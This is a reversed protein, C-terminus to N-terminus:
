TLLQYAKRYWIASMPMAGICWLKYVTQNAVKDSHGILRMNRSYEPIPLSGQTAM